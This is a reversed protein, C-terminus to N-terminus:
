ARAKVAKIAFCAARDVTPYESDRSIAKAYFIVNADRIEEDFSISDTFEGDETKCLKLHDDADDRDSIIATGKTKYGVETRVALKIVAIENQEANLNFKIPAEFTGSSVKTGDQAGETVDGQYINIFNEM